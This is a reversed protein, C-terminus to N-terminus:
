SLEQLIEKNKNQFEIFGEELVQAEILIMDCIKKISRSMKKSGQYSRKHVHM